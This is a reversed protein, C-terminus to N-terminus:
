FDELRMPCFCESVYRLFWFKGLNKGLMCCNIYVEMISWILFFFYSFKWVCNLSGYAQSSNEGHKSFINKEFFGARDYCWKPGLFFSFLGNWSFKWLTSCVKTIPGKQWPGPDLLLIFWNLPMATALLFLIWNM